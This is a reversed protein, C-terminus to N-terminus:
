CHKGSRELGGSYSCGQVGSLEQHICGNLGPPLFTGEVLRVFGLGKEQGGSWDFYRSRVSRAVMSLVDGLSWYAAVLSSRLSRYRRVSLSRWVLLELKPILLHGRWSFNRIIFRNNLLHRRFELPPEGSESLLISIPTSRM